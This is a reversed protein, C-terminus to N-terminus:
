DESREAKPESEPDPVLNFLERVIDLKENGGNAAYEKMRLMPDHTLKNITSRIARRVCEIDQEPLHDLKASCKEWEYTYIADFKERLQKILPVAELTRLYAMFESTEQDIIVLVKEVEAEREVKCRDVLFRLDDINYVFVGEIESVEPEIDRPVAIDILFVPLRGREAMVSEMTERTIIPRRSGTSSIVVDVCRLSEAFRDFDVVEAGLERALPEVRARTRNAITIKDIGNALLHTAALKGMEGAGLLLAKRGKLSGLVLRALQVAAAGISFAGSSIGTETRARKGVSIARQFLNNLIGGTAACEGAVCFANRIQGLIQTEGLALSDLGSAVQFLHKVAHHGPLRYVMDDLSARDVGSYSALFDVLLADDARHTTVAYVETRNCTSLICAECVQKSSTLATLASELDASDVAVKERLDVPATNHSMGVVVLHV